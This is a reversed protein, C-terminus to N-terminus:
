VSQKKIYDRVLCYNQDASFAAWLAVICWIILSWYSGTYMLKILGILAFAVSVMLVLSYDVVRKLARQSDEKTLHETCYAM